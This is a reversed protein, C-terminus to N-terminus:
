LWRAYKTRSSASQKYSVIRHWDAELIEQKKIYPEKVSDLVGHDRNQNGTNHAGQAILARKLNQPFKQSKHAELCIICKLSKRYDFTQDRGTSKFGARGKFDPESGPWGWSRRSLNQPGEKKELPLIKVKKEWQSVRVGIWNRRLKWLMNIHRM